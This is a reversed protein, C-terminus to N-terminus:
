RRAVGFKRVCFRQISFLLRNKLIAAIFM